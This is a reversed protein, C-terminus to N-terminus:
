FNEAHKDYTAHFVRKVQNDSIPYGDLADLCDKYDYTYYCEYNVLEREIINDLGNDKIDQQICEKIIKKYDDNFNKVHIKPLILGMGMKCYVIAKIAKERFQDNSFAYFAGYKDLLTNFPKETYDNLHNM